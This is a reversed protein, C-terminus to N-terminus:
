WWRWFLWLSHKKEYTSIGWDGWKATFHSVDDYLVEWPKVHGEETRITDQYKSNKEKHFNRWMHKYVSMHSSFTTIACGDQTHDNCAGEREKQELMVIHEQYLSSHTRDTPNKMLHFPPLIHPIVHIQGVLLTTVM